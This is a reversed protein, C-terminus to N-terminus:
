PRGPTKDKMCNQYPLMSLSKKWGVQFYHGLISPDLNYFDCDLIQHMARAMERIMDGPASFVCFGLICDNLMFLDIKTETNTCLYLLVLSILPGVAKTKVAPHVGYM